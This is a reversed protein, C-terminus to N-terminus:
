DDLWELELVGDIGVLGLLMGWGSQTVPIYKDIATAATPRRVRLPLAQGFRKEVPRVWEGKPLQRIELDLDRGCGKIHLVGGWLAANYPHNEQDPHYLTGVGHFGETLTVTRAHTEHVPLAYMGPQPVVGSCIQVKGPRWQVWVNTPEFRRDLLTFAVDQPAESLRYEVIAIAQKASDFAKAYLTIEHFQYQTEGCWRWDDSEHLYIQQIEPQGGSSHSGARAEHRSGGTQPSEWEPCRHFPNILACIGYAGREGIRSHRHCWSLFQPAVPWEMHGNTNYANEFELAKVFAPDHLGPDLGFHRMLVHTGAATRDGRPRVCNRCDLCRQPAQQQKWTFDPCAGRANKVASVWAGGNFACYEYVTPKKRFQLIGRHICSTAEQDEREFDRQQQNQLRALSSGLGSTMMGAHEALASVPSRKPRYHECDACSPM